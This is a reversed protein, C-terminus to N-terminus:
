FQSHHFFDSFKRQARSICVLAALLLFVKMIGSMTPKKKLWSSVLPQFNSRTTFSVSLLQFLNCSSLSAIFGFRIGSSRHHASGSPPRLYERKVLFRRRGTVLPSKRSQFTFSRFVVFFFVFFVSGCEWEM